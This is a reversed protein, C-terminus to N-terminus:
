RTLLIIASLTFSAFGMITTLSTRWFTGQSQAAMNPEVYVIDNQQLYYFPSSFFDKQTIDIRYEIRKNNKERIVLINKRNATPNLDGALALAEIISIRENSVLKVGPSRVDGMVSVRFNMIKINVTVGSIYEEYKPQLVEMLENRTLGAVQVKGLVPLVIYGLEDVLYGDDIPIGLPFLMGVAPVRNSSGENSPYNFPKAAEPKDSSVTVSLIDNAKITPSASMSIDDSASGQFYVFRESM